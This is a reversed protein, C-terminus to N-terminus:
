DETRSQDETRMMWEAYERGRNKWDHAAAATLAAPEWVALVEHHETVQQLAIRWAFVKDPPLLRGNVGDRILEPLGGVASAIVPTGTAFAELCVVPTGETQGNPFRRSPLVLVDAARLWKWKEKGYIAGIFQAPVRFSVALREWEARCPGDGAVVLQLADMGALAQLVTPLGKIEVHRGLFLAVPKQPALGLEAKVQSKPVTRWPAAAALLVGMPLVKIKAALTPSQAIMLAQLEASVVACGASDRVLKRLLATGGPLRELLRLGGSHEVMFHPIKKRRAVLHGVLGAPFLWHSCIADAQSALELAKKLFALHFPVLELWAAVDTQLTRRLDAESTLRPHGLAPFSFRHLVLTQPRPDPTQPHVHTFNTPPALVTVDAYATLSEAWEAVFRGSLDTESAPYSTTM